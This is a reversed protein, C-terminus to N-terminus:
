ELWDSGKSNVIREDETGDPNVWYIKRNGNRMERTYLIKTAKRWRITRPTLESYDKHLGVNILNSSAGAGVTMSKLSSQTDGASYIITRADPLWCFDKVASRITMQSVTGAAVTYIWLDYSGGFSTKNSLFALYQGSPSFRPTHNDAKGETLCIPKFGVSDALFLQRGDGSTSTFAMYKGDASFEVSAESSSKWAIVATATRGGPKIRYIDTVLSGANASFYIWKGDPSFCAETICGSFPITSKNVGSLTMARLVPCATDSQKEFYVCKGGAFSLSPKSAPGRKATLPFEAHKDLIKLYVGNVSDRDSIFAFVGSASERSLGFEDSADEGEQAGETITPLKAAVATDPLIDENLAILHNDCSVIKKHKDFRLILKGVCYGGQGPSLILAGGVKMPMEFRQGLAGCIIIDIQPFANAFSVSHEWSDSSILIRVDAGKVASKSLLAALEEAPSFLKKRDEDRDVAAPDITSLVAFSYGGVTVIKKAVIGTGPSGAINSCIFDCKAKREKIFIRDLGFDMEGNGLGRGDYACYDFFWDTYRAKAELSTKTLCNGADLTLSLPFQRRLDRIVAAQRSLGGLSGNELKKPALQGQTNGTYIIAMEMGSERRKLANIESILTHAKWMNPDLEVAKKANSLSLRLHGQEFYKCALFYYDEAKKAPAEKLRMHVSLSWVSGFEKSQDKWGFDAGYFSRELGVGACVGAFGPRSGYPFEYGARLSLFKLLKGAASVGLLLPEDALKSVGIGIRPEIIASLDERLALPSISGAFAAQVPLPEGYGDTYSVNPGINGARLHMLLLPSPSYSIDATVCFTRGANMDLRSEVYSVCVGASLSKHLFSRGFSMGASMDILSPNSPTEDITYANTFKGPTFLQSYFGITGIDELPFFGSLYEKRLGLLWELHTVSFTKRDFLATNAPFFCVDTADMAGCSSANGVSLEAASVPLTLFYGVAHGSNKGKLDTLWSGYGGFSRGPVLALGVFLINMFAVIKRTHNM